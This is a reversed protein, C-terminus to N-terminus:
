NFTKKIINQNKRTQFFKGRPNEKTKENSRKKESIERTSKSKFRKLLAVPLPKSLSSNPSPPNSAQQQSQARQAGAAQSLTLQFNKQHHKSKKRTQFCKGRPNEKTKENSRKKESIERTSKSKFRKLLAVPLPKSVSSNPSPPNSAQQQSQARQAGAAQSLTLQFNKQHHKSKKRTQFCKGRPNEKTKENSRKKESIERTSKSKFRKLLAVPLPKSVSSNPSPPNSAQQQSQARQAGAAQSLTLQFNKQHHKSKKRTQFCKGRPNAKTKENSRKKESIERTSKSKSRKLLAVPLPKSVSSNPSPPNSAQQQSQARQAGVAQSLTLQFNKQHHESKKQNSFM